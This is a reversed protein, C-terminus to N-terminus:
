KKKKYSTVVCMVLVLKKCYCNVGGGRGGGFFGGLFVGSSIYQIKLYFLVSPCVYIYIYLGNDCLLQPWHPVIILLDLIECTGSM